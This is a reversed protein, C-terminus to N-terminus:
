CSAPPPTRMGLALESLTSQDLQVLVRPGPSRRRLRNVDLEM